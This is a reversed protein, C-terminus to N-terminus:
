HLFNRRCMFFIRLFFPFIITLLEPSLKDKLITFVLAIFTFTCFFFCFYQYNELQNQVSYNSLPVLLLALRWFDSKSEFLPKKQLSLIFSPTKICELCCNHIVWCYIYIKKKLLSYKSLVSETPLNAEVQFYEYPAVNSSGWTRSFPNGPQNVSDLTISVPLLSKDIFQDIVGYYSPLVNLIHPFPYIKM